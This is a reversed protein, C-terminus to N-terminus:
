SSSIKISSLGEEYALQWVAEIILLERDFETKARHWDRWSDANAQVRKFAKNYVDIWASRHEARM